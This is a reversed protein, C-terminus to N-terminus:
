QVLMCSVACTRCAREVALLPQFPSGHSRFAPFAASVIPIGDNATHESYLTNLRTTIPGVNGAGITRGDVEPVGRDLRSASRLAFTRACVVDRVAM